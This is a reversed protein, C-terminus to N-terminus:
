SSLNRSKWKQPYLNVCGRFLEKEPSQAQRFWIDRICQELEGFNFSGLIFSTMTHLESTTFIHFLPPLFLPCFLIFLKLIAWTSIFYHFSMRRPPPTPRLRRGQKLARNHIFITFSLQTLMMDQKPQDAAEPTHMFAPPQRLHLM